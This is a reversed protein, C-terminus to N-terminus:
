CPLLAPLRCAFTLLLLLLLLELGPQLAQCPAHQPGLVLAALPQLAWHQHL